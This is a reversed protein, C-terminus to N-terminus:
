NKSWPNKRTRLKVRMWGDRDSSMQLVGGGGGSQITLIKKTVQLCTNKNYQLPLLHHVISYLQKKDCKNAWSLHGSEITWFTSQAIWQIICNSERVAILQHFTSDLKPVVPPCNKITKSNNNCQKTGAQLKNSMLLNKILGYKVNCSDMQNFINDHKPLTIRLAQLSFILFSQHAIAMCAHSLM